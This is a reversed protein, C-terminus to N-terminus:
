EAATYQAPPIFFDATSVAKGRPTEVSIRGSGTGLPVSTALSTTTASGVTARGINFVVNNSSTTTEFNTGTITVPTGPTGIIPTFSTITPAGNSATVTFPTTSTASGSPSTVVILGTTAGPPVITVIQTAMASSVTAATGNFTVTNQSATPSFGTGYITVTTGVPGQDPIFDIVRVESSNWRAISLLNGVADYTYQAAEGVPDVVATLRGLEDYVYAIDAAHARPTGSWGSGHWAPAPSLVLTWGALLLIALRAWLPSPRFLSRGPSLPVAVRVGGPM